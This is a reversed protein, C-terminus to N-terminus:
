LLKKYGLVTEAWLWDFETDIDIGEAMNESILPLMDNSFFSRNKRLTNPSVLYFSGNIVYATTLDQSRLQLNSSVIFPQLVGDEIKFCWMPHSEAPSMGIVSRQQHHRKFLKIGKLLTERSRFPTTPQLLLLGDIKGVEAEYWDLAHIAADFTTAIDTSLKEPRVWPVLAGFKRSIEAIHQDDTSVLIDVIDSMGKAIEISWVILPKGGLSRINKGPIRKSGGRALILALIKM